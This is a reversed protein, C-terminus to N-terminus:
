KVAQLRDWNHLVYLGMIEKSPVADCMYCKHPSPLFWWM